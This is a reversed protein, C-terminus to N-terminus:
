GLAYIMTYPQTLYKDQFIKITKIYINEGLEWGQSKYQVQCKRKSIKIKMYTNEGLDWGQSNVNPKVINSNNETIFSMKGDHKQWLLNHNCQLVLTVFYPTPM